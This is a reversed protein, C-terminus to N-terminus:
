TAGSGCVDCGGSESPVVCRNHVPSGCKACFRSDLEDPIRLGCRVCNQNVLQGRGLLAGSHPTAPARLKAFEEPTLAEALARRSVAYEPANPDFRELRRRRAAFVRTAAVLALIPLVITQLFVSIPVDSTLPGNLVRPLICSVLLLLPVSVLLGIGLTRMWRYQESRVSELMYEQFKGCHRCPIPVVHERFARELQGRAESEARQRSGASDLFYHNNASGTTRLRVLYYFQGGCHGCTEARWKQGDATVTVTEGFYM